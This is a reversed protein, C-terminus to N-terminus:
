DGNKICEIKLINVLKEKIIDDDINSNEIVDDIWKNEKETMDRTDLKKIINKYESDNKEINAIQTRLSTVEISLYKKINRFIQIQKMLIENAWASDKVKITLINNVYFSPYCISSLTEGVIQQWQESIKIYCILNYNGRYNRNSFENLISKVTFM